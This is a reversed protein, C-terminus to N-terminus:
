VLKNFPNKLIVQYLPNILVQLMFKSSGTRFFNNLINIVPLSLVDPIFKFDLREATGAKGPM